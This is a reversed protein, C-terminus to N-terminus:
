YYHSGSGTSRGYRNVCIGIVRAGARELLGLANRMDRRRTRGIDTVVLVGEVVSALVSADTASLLAPSDVIVLDYREVMGSLELAMRQSALLESPNHPLPGSPLLDLGPHVNPVIHQSLDGGRALLTTLGHDADVGFTRWLTPRRLDADVVLVGGGIQACSRALNAAVFSKGCGPRDGAILLSRVPNEVSAFGIAARLMRISEADHGAPQGGNGSAHMNGDYGKM